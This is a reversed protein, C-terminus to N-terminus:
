KPNSASSFKMSFYQHLYGVQLEETSVNNWFHLITQHPFLQDEQEGIVTVKVLAHRELLVCLTFRTSIGQLIITFVLLLNRSDRREQAYAFHQGKRRM